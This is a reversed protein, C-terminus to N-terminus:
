FLFVLILLDHQGFPFLLGMLRLPVNVDRAQFLLGGHHGDHKQLATQSASLANGLLIHAECPLHTM